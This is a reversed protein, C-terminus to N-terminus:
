VQEPLAVDVVMHMDRAYRPRQNKMGAMGNPRDTPRHRRVLSERSGAIVRHIRFLLWVRIKQMIQGFIEALKIRYVM